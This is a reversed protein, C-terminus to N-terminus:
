GGGCGTSGPDLALAIAHHFLFLSAGIVVAFAAVIPLVVLQVRRRVQIFRLAWAL